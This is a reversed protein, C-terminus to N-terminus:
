RDAHGPRDDDPASDHALGAEVKALLRLLERYESASLDAMLESEWALARPVVLALLDDGEATLTLRLTRQDTADRQRRVLRREVLQAIARSVRVKDMATLECIRKATLPQTQQLWALVRWQAITLDYQQAYITSLAQSIREALNALRYPLFAELDLTNPSHSSM